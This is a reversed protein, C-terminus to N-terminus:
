QVVLYGIMPVGDKPDSHTECIIAYTGAEKPTFRVITTKGKTVTAKINLGEITFPHSQGSAGTIRLEVPQGKTVPITGPDWRYAEVEKGSDTTWTFETTMIYRVQTDAPVPASAAQSRHWGAYAAGLVVIALAAIYWQIRRKSIFMVKSM